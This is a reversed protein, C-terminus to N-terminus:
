MRKTRRSRRSSKTTKSSSLRRSRKLASSTDASRSRSMRASSKASSITLVAPASASTPSSITPRAMSAANAFRTSSEKDRGIPSSCTATASIRRSTIAARSSRSAIDRSCHSTSLDKRVGAASARKNLRQAKANRKARPQVRRTRANMATATAKTSRLSRNSKPITTEGTPEWTPPRRTPRLSDASTISISICFSRIPLPKDGADVASLPLRPLSRIGRQAFMVNRHGEPYPVSREYSYVPTFHKPITFISVAKQTTWWSYERGNGYDHDGDGIWDFNAADVAYRWMDLLGGDAGGDPSLETHRHFEGRWITLAEGNLAVENTRATKVADIEDATRQIPTAPVEADIPSLAPAAAADTTRLAAIYLNDNADPGAANNRRGAGNQNGGGGVVAASAEVPPSPQTTAVAADDSQDAAVEGQPMHPNDLASPQAVEGRSDGSYLLLAGGKADAVVAPRNDLINNSRPVWTSPVWKDGDLRTVFEFWVSGIGVRWNGNQRGRYALWVQGADDLALRPYSPATGARARAAAGLGAPRGNPRTTPGDAPSARGGIADTLDPPAFWQNAAPDYIKVAVTRNGSYLPVGVKKLAGFDKGWGDGGVEYAIWLKGAADYALSPRGEFKLSAAVPVAQASSNADGDFTAAYVDYDGKAYTDWGVTVHGNKDAAIAPEWENATTDTVRQAASFDAKGSDLQHSVFVNFNTDRGGIWTVWVRGKSDTTAAPQFDSGPAKSLNIPEGLKNTSPEFSRALLEWNGEDLTANTEQHASYFIWVKGDGDIAISPRYFEAGTKESVDISDTWKGDKFAKLLVRDGGSPERLYEFDEPKEIKRVPAAAGLPLEPSVGLAAIRERAGPFSKGRTFSVFAAFITGNGARAAVPYDEDDATATAVGVPPVREITAGGSLANVRDGFAVAHPKFEFTGASTKVTVVSDAGSDLLRVIM